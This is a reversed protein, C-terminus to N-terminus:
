DPSFVHATITYPHTFYDLVLCRIHEGALVSRVRVENQKEEMSGM